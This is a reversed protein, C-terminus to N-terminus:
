PQDEEMRLGQWVVQYRGENTSLTRSEATWANRLIFVKGNILEVTVTVDTMRAIGAFTLAPDDSFTGSIQPVRPRELYGHPGDQGAVGEREVDDPMIELDGQLQFQQGDVKLYATGGIAAM